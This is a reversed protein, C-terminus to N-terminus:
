FLMLLILLPIIISNKPFLAKNCSLEVLEYSTYNKIEDKVDDIEINSPSSACFNKYENNSIKIKVFCCIEGSQICQNPGTPEFYGINGCTNIVESTAMYFLFGFIISNIARM